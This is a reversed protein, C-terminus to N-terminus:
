FVLQALLDVRDNAYARADDEQAATFNAQLTLPGEQPRYSLGVTHHVLTDSGFAELLQGDATEGFEATPDYSAYRYALSIGGRSLMAAAHYGLLTMSPEQGVEKIEVDRQSLAGEIALTNAGFRQVIQLDASLSLEDQAIQDPAIGTTRRNFRSALGVVVMSKYGITVRTSAAPLENDNVVSDAGEGNTLAVQYGGHMSDSTGFKGHVAMGVERSVGLGRTNFGDVGRVGRNYVARDVFVM